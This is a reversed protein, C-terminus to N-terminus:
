FPADEEQVDKSPEQEQKKDLFIINDAIIETRYKKEGSTKDEWSSTQLRGSVFAKSGKGLYEASIEALKGWVVINHWETKEVWEGDSNKVNSTTALSFKTVANGSSTFKIEPTQGLNGILQVANLSKSM